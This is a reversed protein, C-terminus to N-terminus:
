KSNQLIGVLYHVELASFYPSADSAHGPWHVSFVLLVGNDSDIASAAVVCRPTLTDETSAM